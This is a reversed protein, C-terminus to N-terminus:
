ATHIVECFFIIKGATLDATSITLVVGKPGTKCGMGADTFRTVENDKAWIGDDFATAAVLVHGTGGGIAITANGGSTFATVLYYGHVLVVDGTSAPVVTYSGQAGTDVSFDYIGIYSKSPYEGATLLLPDTLETETITGATIQAATVNNVASELQAEWGDTARRLINKVKAPGCMKPISTLSLTGM